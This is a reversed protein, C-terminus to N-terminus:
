IAVVLTCISSLGAILKVTKFRDIQEPPVASNVGEEVTAFVAYVHDSTPANGTSTPPTIAPAADPGAGTIVRDKVLIPLVGAVNSKSTIGVLGEIPAQAPLGARKFSTTFGTGAVGILSVKLKHM